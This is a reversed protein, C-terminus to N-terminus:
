QATVNLWLYDIRSGIYEDAQDYFETYEDFIEDPMSDNITDKMDKTKESYLFSTKYKNMFKLLNGYDETSSAGFLDGDPISNYVYNRFYKPWVWYLTVKYPTDIKFTADTEDKGKPANVTYVIGKDTNQQATDTIWNEDHLWGSYGSAANWNKFFLIHGQLLSKLTPDKVLHAKETITSDKAYGEIELQLNVTKLGDIRPIIYLEVKGNAGPSMKVSDSDLHWALDATGVYYTKSVTKTGGETGTKIETEMETEGTQADICFSYPETEGETLNLNEREATQREGVSALEFPIGNKASISGTTGKVMNNYVFWAIGLAILAILAAVAFVTSRAAKRKDKQIQKHLQEPPLQEMAQQEKEKDTM